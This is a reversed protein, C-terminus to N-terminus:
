LYHDIITEDVSVFSPRMRVMPALMETVRSTSQIPLEKRQGVTSSGDVIYRDVVKCRLELVRIYVRYPNAIAAKDPQKPTLVGESLSDRASETKPQRSSVSAAVNRSPRRSQPRITPPKSALETLTYSHRKM